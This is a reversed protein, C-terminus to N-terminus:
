KDDNGGSTRVVESVHILVKHDQTGPDNGENAHTWSELQQEVFLFARIRSGQKYFIDELTEAVQINAMTPRPTPDSLCATMLDSSMVDTSADHAASWIGLTRAM